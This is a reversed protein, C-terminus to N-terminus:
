GSRRQLSRDIPDGLLLPKLLYHNYYKCGAGRKEDKKEIQPM